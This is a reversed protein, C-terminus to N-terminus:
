YRRSRFYSYEWRYIDFLQNWSLTRIRQLQTHEYWRRFSRDEKLWRPMKKARTPTTKRNDRRYEDRYRDRSASKRVSKDINHSTYQSYTEEHAAAEPSDLLLLGFAIVTSILIKNM